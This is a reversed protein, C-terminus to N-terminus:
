SSWQRAEPTIVVTNSVGAHQGVMNKIMKTLLVAKGVGAGGFLGAKGGRELPMLVDIIKVGTEFIGSKTFRRVLPPPVRHVSRWQVDSLPAERDITNGFVDFMRWFIGTGM